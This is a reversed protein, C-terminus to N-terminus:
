DIDVKNLLQEEKSRQAKPIVIDDFTIFYKMQHVTFYDVFRIAMYTVAFLPVTIILSVYFTFVALILTAAVTLVRLTFYSIFRELMDKFKLGKFVSKLATRVKCKESVVKAPLLGVTMLRVADMVFIFLVVLSLGSVGFLNISGLAILVSLGIVMSNYLFLSIVCYLAYALAPKIHEVLTTFFEAHRLSTMHEYVNVAMVYDCVSLVFRALQFVMFIAVGVLIIKTSYSSILNLFAELHIRLQESAIVGDIQEVNIFSSIINRVFTILSIFETSAIIPKVIINAFLLCITIAISFIITKALLMKYCLPKNAMALKIGNTVKM